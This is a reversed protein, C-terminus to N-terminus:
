PPPQPLGGPLHHRRADGRAGRNRVRRQDPDRDRLRGIGTLRLRRDDRPGADNRNSDFLGSDHSGGHALPAARAGAGRPAPAGSGWGRGGGRGGGPGAGPRGRARAGTGGSGGVAGAPLDRQLVFELAGLHVFSRCCSSFHTIICERNRIFSVPACSLTWRASTSRNRTNCTPASGDGCDTLPTLMATQPAAERCAISPWSTVSSSLSGGSPAPWRSAACVPSLRIVM